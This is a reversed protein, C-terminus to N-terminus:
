LRGFERLQDKRSKLIHPVSEHDPWATVLVNCCRDCLNDFQGQVAHYHWCRPCKSYRPDLALSKVVCSPQPCMLAEHEADISDMM